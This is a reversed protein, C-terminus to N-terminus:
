AKGNDRRFALSLLGLIVGLWFIHVIGFASYLGYTLLLDFLWFILM